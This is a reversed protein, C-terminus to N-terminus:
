IREEFESQATSQHQLICVSYMEASPYSASRWRTSLIHCYVIQHHPQLGPTKATPLVDENGKSGPENQVPTTTGPLTM